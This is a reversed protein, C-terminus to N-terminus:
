DSVAPCGFFPLRIVLGADEPKTEPRAPDPARAALMGRARKVLIELAQLQEPHVTITKRAYWGVGSRAISRLTLSVEGREGESLYM